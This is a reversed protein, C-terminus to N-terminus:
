PLGVLASYVGSICVPSVGLIDAGRGVFMPASRASVRQAIKVQLPLNMRDVFGRVYDLCDLIEPFPIYDPFDPCIASVGAGPLALMLRGLEESAGSWVRPLCVVAKIEAGSGLISRVLALEELARSVQKDAFFNYRMNLYVDAGAANLKKAQEAQREKAAMGGWGRPHDIVTRALERPLCETLERFENLHSVAGRANYAKATEALFRSDGTLGRRDYFYGVELHKGADKMILAEQEAM